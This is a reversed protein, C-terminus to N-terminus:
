GCAPGKGPYEHGVPENAHLLMAQGAEAAAAALGAMDPEDLRFGQGDANLEGVGALGGDLCRRLERVAAAGATPQIAALGRLRGASARVVEMLWSNHEVCLDHQQWPWGVVVAQAVGDRDMDALLQEPSVMHARASSYLFGFFPDRASYRERDALVDPPFLHVHADVVRVAAPDAM